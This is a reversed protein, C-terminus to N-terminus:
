NIAESVASLRALLTAAATPPIACDLIQDPVFGRLGGRVRDVLVEVFGEPLPHPWESLGEWLRGLVVEAIFTAVALRGAESLSPDAMDLAAQVAAAESEGTQRALSRAKFVHAPTM